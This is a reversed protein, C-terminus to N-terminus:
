CIITNICRYDVGNINLIGIYSLNMSMMLLNYCGNCIYLQFKFGKHCIDCGNSGSTQSIDIGESIDIRDYYLMQLEYLFKNIIM